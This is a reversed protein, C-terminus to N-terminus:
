RSCFQHVAEKGYEVIVTLTEHVDKWTTNYNIICMRLTFQGNLSTSSVFARDGWFIRSLVDKNIQELSEEDFVKDAPEVRFCVIGLMAPTLMQLISSDEIFKEARKALNLGQSVARVFAAMGFTQISMWIKLARVSRSLQIGRDSFNPYDAGWITDQLIDHRVSFVRELTGLDKVMLCGVEYPQFLWKHADLGISDAREIGQLLERGENTIISFGGYAADVHLWIKEDQCYDALAELPDIAGCSSTGANASVVIPRFGAARDEAVAKALADLNIRYHRDTPILRISNQRVGVIRASRIQASHSQVSMYVSPREPHGAAERAAVFADLSAASGGSTLLGGAGKPYGLWNRFWEIVVLELESPGSATLWFGQNVNYGAVMFDALVGPWTPASPIFGFCRPHDLRLAVPLINRVTQEIVEEAPRGNEPPDELLQEELVPRFEGEWVTMEPLNKVREVLLEATKNALELMQEPSMQLSTGQEDRRRNKSGVDNM